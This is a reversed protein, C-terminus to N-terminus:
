MYVNESHLAPGVGPGERTLLTLRRLGDSIPKGHKGYEETAQAICSAVAIGFEETSLTGRRDDSGEGVNASQFIVKLKPLKLVETLGFDRAFKTFETIDMQSNSDNISDFTGRTTSMM